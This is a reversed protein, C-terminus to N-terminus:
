VGNTKTHFMRAIIKLTFKAGGFFNFIVGVTAQSILTSVAAGIAGYQPILILNLILNVAVGIVSRQLVIHQKNETILMKTVIAALYVFPVCWISISLVEAARSYDEKYLLNIIQESLIVTVVALLISGWVVIRGLKVIGQYYADRGPTQLLELFKPYYVAIITLGVFFWAESLRTAATYIAVEEAGILYGLMVQDMKMYLFVLASSIILPKAENLLRLSRQSSLKLNKIPIHVKKIILYYVFGTIILEFSYAIALWLIDGTTFLVIIRFVLGSIHGVILGKAALSSKGQANFLWEILNIPLFLHYLSLVFLLLRDEQAILWIGIANILLISLISGGVRLAWAHYLYSFQKQQEQVLKKVLLTDLGLNNLFIFISTIAYAYMLIGFKDPGLINAMLILITLHSSMKVFKESIM